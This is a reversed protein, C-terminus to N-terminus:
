KIDIQIVRFNQKCHFRFSCCRGIFYDSFLSFIIFLQKIYKLQIFNFKFLKNLLEFDTLEIKLKIKRKKLLILKFAQKIIKKDNKM